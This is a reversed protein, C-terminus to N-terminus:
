QGVRRGVIRSGLLRLANRFDELIPLLREPHARAGSEILPLTRCALPAAEDVLRMRGATQAGVVHAANTFVAGPLQPHGGIAAAEVAKVALACLEADPTM